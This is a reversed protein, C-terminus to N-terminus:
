YNELINGAPTGGNALARYKDLGFAMRGAVEGVPSTENRVAEIGLFPDASSYAEGAAPAAEAPSQAVSVAAEPAAGPGLVAALARDGLDGGGTAEAVAARAATGILGLPGGFLGGGLISAGPAITDGTAWRYLQAVLPIHQLPNGIDIADDFTFEDAGFFDNPRDRAPDVRGSVVLLGREHADLHNWDPEAVASAATEMRAPALPAAGSVPSISLPDKAM